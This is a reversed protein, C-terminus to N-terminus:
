LRPLSQSPLRAAAPLLLRRATAATRVGALTYAATPPGPGAPACRASSPPSPSRRRARDARDDTMQGARASGGPPQIVNQHTLHYRFSLSAIAFREEIYSSGGSVGLLNFLIRFDINAFLSMFAAHCHSFIVTDQSRLCKTKESKVQAYLQDLSCVPRDLDATAAGDSDLAARADFHTLDQLRLLLQFSESVKGASAKAAAGASPLRNLQRPPPQEACARRERQAVYELERLAAAAGPQALLRRWEADCPARARRLDRLTAAVSRVRLLAHAAALAAVLAPVLPPSAAINGCDAFVGCDAALRAAACVLGLGACADLFLPESHRLAAALPAYALAAVSPLFAERPAGAGVFGAAAAVSGAALAWLACLMTAKARAPQRLVGLAAACLLGAAIVAPEAINQELVPWPPRLDFRLERAALPAGGGLARVGNATWRFDPAGVTAWTAGADESSQLSFHVPPGDTDPFTLIFGDAALPSDVRWTHNASAATAQFSITPCGQYTFSISLLRDAGVLRFYTMHLVHDQYAQVSMIMFILYYIGVFFTLIQFSPRTIWTSLTSITSSFGLNETQTKSLDNM